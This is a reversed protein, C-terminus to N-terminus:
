PRSVRIELTGKPIAADQSTVVQVSVIRTRMVAEALNEAASRDSDDGYLVANQGYVTITREGGREGSTQTDSPDVGAGKIRWTASLARVMQIIEERKISGAFRM